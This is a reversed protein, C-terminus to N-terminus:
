VLWHPMLFAVLVVVVFVVVVVLTADSIKERTIRKVNYNIKYSGQLYNM